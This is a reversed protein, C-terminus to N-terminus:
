GSTATAAKPILQFPTIFYPDLEKCRGLPCCKWTLSNGARCNRVGSVQVSFGSVKYGVGSVRCRFTQCRVGSVQFVGSVM